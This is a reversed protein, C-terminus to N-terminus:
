EPPNLKAKKLIKGALREKVEKHRPIFENIKGNTWVDHNAGHRHHWWGLKNLRKELEKKKM